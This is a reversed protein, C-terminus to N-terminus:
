PSGPLDETDDVEVEVDLLEDRSKRRTWPTTPSRSSHAGRGLNKRLITKPISGERHVTEAGVGQLDATCDDGTGPFDGPGIVVGHNAAFHCRCIRTLDYERVTNIGLVM